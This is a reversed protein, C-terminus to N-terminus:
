LLVKNEASGRGSCPWKLLLPPPPPAPPCSICNKYFIVSVSYVNIVIAVSVLYFLPLFLRDFYNLRHDKCSAGRKRKAIQHTNNGNWNPKVHQYQFAVSDFTEYLDASWNEYNSTSLPLQAYPIRSFEEIHEGVVDPTCPVRDYIPESGVAVDEMLQNSLGSSTGREGGEGGSSSSGITLNSEWHVEKTVPSILLRVPDQHHLITQRLILGNM